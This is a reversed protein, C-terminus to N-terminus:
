ESIPHYGRKQMFVELLILLSIATDTATLMYGYWINNLCLLVAIAASVWYVGASIIRSRKKKEESLYKHRNKVPAFIWIPIYSLLLLVFSIIMGYELKSIVQAVFFTVGFTFAFAINCRLYTEAHYGGTYSRLFIFLTMFILGAPLDGLLLGGFIILMLNILSSVSIEIGYKYIEKMEEDVQMNRCIFALIKLSIKEMVDGMKM